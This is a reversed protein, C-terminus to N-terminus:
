AEVIWKMGESESSLVPRKVRGMTKEKRKKKKELFAYLQFWIVICSKWTPMEGKAIHM